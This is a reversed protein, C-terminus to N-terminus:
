IVIKIDFNEKCGPIGKEILRLMQDENTPNALIVVTFNSHLHFNGVNGIQDMNEDKTVVSIYNVRNRWDDFSFIKEGNFKREDYYRYKELYETEAPESTFSFPLNGLSLVFREGTQMAAVLRRRINDLANDKVEDGQLDKNIHEFHMRSILAKYSFFQECKMTWDFLLLYKGTMRSEHTQCDVKKFDLIEAGIKEAFEQYNPPNDWETNNEFEPLAEM